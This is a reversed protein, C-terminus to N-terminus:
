KAIRRGAAQTQFTVRQDDPAWPDEIDRAIVIREEIKMFWTHCASWGTMGSFM